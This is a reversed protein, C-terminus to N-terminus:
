QKAGEFLKRVRENLRAACDAQTLVNFFGNRECLEPAPPNPMTAPKGEITIPRGVGSDTPIPPGFGDRVVIHKRSEATLRELRDVQERLEDILMTATQCKGDRWSICFARQVNQFVDLPLMSPPIFTDAARTGQFLAGAFLALACITVERARSM